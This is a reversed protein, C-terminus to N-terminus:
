ADITGSYRIEKIPERRENREFFREAKAIASRLNRSPTLFQFTEDVGSLKVDWLHQEKKRM